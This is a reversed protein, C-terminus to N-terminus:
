RHWFNDIEQPGDMVPQLRTVGIWQNNWENKQRIRELSEQHFAHQERAEESTMDCEWEDVTDTETSTSLRQIASDFLRMVNCMGHCDVDECFIRTLSPKDLPKTACIVARLNSNKRASRIFRDVGNVYIRKERQIQAILKRLEDVTKPFRFRFEFFAPARSSFIAPLLTTNAANSRMKRIEGSDMEIFYNFCQHYGIHRARRFETKENSFEPLWILVNKHKWDVNECHKVCNYNSWEHFYDRFKRLMAHTNIGSPIVYGVGDNTALLVKDINIWGNRLLHGDVFRNLTRFTGAISEKFFESEECEKPMNM